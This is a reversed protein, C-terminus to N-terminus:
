PQAGAHRPRSHAATRLLADITPPAVLHATWLDYAQALEPNARGYGTRSSVSRDRATERM